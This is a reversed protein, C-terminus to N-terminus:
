LNSKNGNEDVKVKRGDKTTYIGPKLTSKQARPPGQQPPPTAGGYKPDGKINLGTNSQYQNVVADPTSGYANRVKGNIIERLIGLGNRYEAASKGASIMGLAATMRAEETKTVAKGSTSQMYSNYAAQAKQVVKQGEASKMFGPFGGVGLGVGDADLGDLEDLTRILFGAEPGVKQGLRHLDMANGREQRTADSKERMAEKMAWAIQMANMRGDQRMAEIARQTDGKFEALKAAAEAKAAALEEASGLKEQLGFAGFVKEFNEGNLKGAVEDPLGLKRGMDQVLASVPGMPDRERAATALEEETGQNALQAKKMAVREVPQNARSTINKDISDYMSSDFEKGVARSAASGLGRGISALLRSGNAERQTIGMEDPEEEKPAPGPGMDVEFPLKLGKKIDEHNASITPPRSTDGFYEEGEPAKNKFKGKVKVSVSKSSSKSAPNKNDKMVFNEYDPPAPEAANEWSLMKNLKAALEEDTGTVERLGMSALKDKMTRGGRGRSMPLNSM